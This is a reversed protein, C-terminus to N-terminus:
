FLVSLRIHGWVIHWIAYYVLRFAYMSVFDYRRFVQLQCVNIAFIHLSDYAVTSAAYSTPGGVIPTETVAAWTQFAPELLAVLLLSAQVTTASRRHRAIMPMVTLVAALPLLHFLIEVMLGIVPYFLVSQPFPVNMDAPHVMASDVGIILLGFLSALVAARRLGSAAEPRVILFGDRALLVHLLAAGLLGIGAAAIVPNTGGILPEFLAASVVRAVLALVLVAAWLGAYVFFQRRERLTSLRIWGVWETM